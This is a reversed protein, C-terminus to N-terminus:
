LPAGAEVVPGFVREFSAKLAADVEDMTVPLGQDVLSTVGHETIGCPVIGGFHSLDPEINLSIGHFSVWRRIKVGIAAIKEERVPLGPEKRDVWVGVRCPRVEGVVNFAALAEIVWDELAGVFARVDQRRKRLDLMVYAVRQGPGHYTYQGGRASEFVPFRDPELLDAPKASVGATYLPPHELLWILEGAQGDIIAQVRAEMAAVADPYAIQGSSIAWGAPAGDERTLRPASIADNLPRALM